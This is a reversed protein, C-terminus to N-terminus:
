DDAGHGGSGQDNGADHTAPDDLGHGGSGHDDGVDHGAPDDAGGSPSPVAAPAPAHLVDDVGSGASGHDDGVDHGVTSSAPTARPSSPGDASATAAFGLLGASLAATAATLLIKRTM